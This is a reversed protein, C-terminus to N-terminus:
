YKMSSFGKLTVKQISTKQINIFRYKKNNNLTKLLSQSNYFRSTLQIKAGPIYRNKQKKNFLNSLDNSLKM